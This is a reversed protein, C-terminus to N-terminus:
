NYELEYEKNAINITARVKWKEAKEQTPYWSRNPSSIVFLADDCGVAVFDDKRPGKMFFDIEKQHIIENGTQIPMDTVLGIENINLIQEISFPNDNNNNLDSRSILELINKNNDFFYIAKARWNDFETVYSNEAFILNTKQLIWELAEEIKNSPINFAFHYKPSHKIDTLEFTLKSTGVIFSISKKTEKVIDFGITQSYFLKTESINNTLLLLEQIKM